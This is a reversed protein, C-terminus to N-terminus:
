DKIITVSIQVCNKQNDSSMKKLCGSNMALYDMSGKLIDEVIHSDHMIKVKAGEVSRYITGSHDSAHLIARLPRKTAVTTLWLVLLDSFQNQNEPLKKIRNPDGYLASVHTRCAILLIPLHNVFQKQGNPYNLRKAEIQCNTTQGNYLFFGICYNQAFPLEKYSVDLTTPEGLYNVEYDSM